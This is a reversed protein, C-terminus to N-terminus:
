WKVKLDFVRKANAVFQDAPFTGASQAAKAEPTSAVVYGQVRAGLKTWKKKDVDTADNWTRVATIVPMRQTGILYKLGSLTDGEVLPAGCGPNVCVKAGRIFGPITTGCLGCQDIGTSLLGGCSPCIEGTYEKPVKTGCTGCINFKEATSADAMAQIGDKLAAASAASSATIAQALPALDQAPAAVAVQVPYMAVLKARDGINLGAEKLLDPTQAAGKLAAETDLGNTELATIGAESLMGDQLKKRLEATMAM